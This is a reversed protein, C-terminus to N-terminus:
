REVRTVSLVASSRPVRDVERPRGGRRRKIGLEDLRTIVVQRSTGIIEAVADLSHGALYLRAVAHADIHTLRNGAYHRAPTGSRQLSRTIASPTVGLAEGLELTTEGALYRRAVEDDDLVKHHELAHDTATIPRLNEPRNDSKDHNLHHVHEATTVHDGEVRHEYCEVQEGPGVRWRLRIYGHGSKYRRPEGEPLKEGPRLQRIM